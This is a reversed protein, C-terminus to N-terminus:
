ILSKSDHQVQKVHKRHNPQMRKIGFAHTFFSVHAIFFCVMSL